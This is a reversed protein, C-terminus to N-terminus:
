ELGDVFITDISMATGIESTSGGASTATLSIVGGALQSPITINPLSFVGRATAAIVTVNTHGLYVEAHGRGILSNASSSYYADIRYTGTHTDLIGGLTAPRDLGNPGTGLGTYALKTAIPFNQLNNPGTDNDGSDNATPGASGGTSILDIDMVPFLDFNDYILNANVTDGKIVLGGGSMFRITNATIFGGQAGAGIINNSGFILVGIANNSISLPGNQTTVGIQNQQMVNSNGNILVNAITNGAIRNQYIGCGSGSV